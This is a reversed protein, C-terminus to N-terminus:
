SASTRTRRPPSVCVRSVWMSTGDRRNRSLALGAVAAWGVPVLMWFSIIRYLMVGAVATGAPLHYAILLLSLTGEVVGIGGPTIPLAAALQTLAYCALIGQWPVRGGVAVISLALCACDYIWNLAAAALCRVLLPRPIRVARLEVM